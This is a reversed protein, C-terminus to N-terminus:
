YRNKPPAHSCESSGVKSTDLTCLVFEDLGLHLEDTEDADDDALDAKIVAKASGNIGDAKAAGATKKSQNNKKEGKKTIHKEEIEDAEDDDLLGNTTGKLAKAFGNTM